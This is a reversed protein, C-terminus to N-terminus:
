GGGLKMTVHIPNGDPDASYARREGWPEDRRPVCSRRKSAACLSAGAIGSPALRLYVFNSPGEPPFRYVAEFGFGQLLFERLERRRPRLHDSFPEPTNV